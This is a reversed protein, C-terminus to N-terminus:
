TLARPTRACRRAAGVPCPRTPRRRCGDPRFQGRVVITPIAIPWLVSAWSALSNTRSAEVCSSDTMRPSHKGPRTAPRVASGASRRRAARSPLRRRTAPRDGEALWACVHRRPAQAAGACRRGARRGPRSRSTPARMRSRPRWSSLSAMCARSARPLFRRETRRDALVLDQEALRTASGTRPPSSPDEHRRTEILVCEGDVEDSRM